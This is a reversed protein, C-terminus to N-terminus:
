ASAMLLEILLDYLKTHLLTTMYVHKAAESCSRFQETATVATVDRDTISRLSNLRTGALLLVLFSSNGAEAM